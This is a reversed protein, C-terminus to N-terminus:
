KEKHVFTSAIFGTLIALWWPSLGGPATVLQLILVLCIAVEVHELYKVRKSILGFSFSLFGSAIVFFLNFPM